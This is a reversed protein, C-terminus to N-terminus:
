VSHWHMPVRTKSCCRGAIRQCRLSALVHGAEAIESVGPAFKAAVLSLGGWRLILDESRLVCSDAVPFCSRRVRLVRQARLRGAAFWVADGALNALISAGAM